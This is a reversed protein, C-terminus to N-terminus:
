KRKPPAPPREADPGLRRAFDRAVEAYCIVNLSLYESGSRGGYQRDCRNRRQMYARKDAPKLKDLFLAECRDTTVKATVADSSAGAACATLWEYSERCTPADRLLAEIKDLNNTPCELEAGLSPCAIGLLAVILGSLLAAGPKM